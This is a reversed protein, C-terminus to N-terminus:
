RSETDADSRRLGPAVSKLHLDRQPFPIEIGTDVIARNVLVTVESRIRIFRESRNTWARLEFDLSSDGFGLFLVVPEPTKLLDPHTGAVEKLLAIVREPDTGYAVGVKVDVRRDRDSLTWNIVQQSILDGNPVIVEAGEWTRVTSSRIGIRKVEGFLSTVQITDGVQVPREFLLILGSIFNNVVNQLGFGIGVGFAGALLAFQSLQVGAAAVALLFGLLLIGYHLVYSVAYPVGRPLALRPLLDEDLVFRVFRSLLFSAWVTLGFLLIGGFSFEVAGLSIPTAVASTVADVVNGRVAFLNLVIWVWWVLLGAHVWAFGRRRLLPAHSQVMRLLRLPRVRLAVAVLGDLVKAAAYFIAAVLFSGLTAVVLLRALNVAGAGNALLAVAMLLLGLWLGLVIARLWGTAGTLAVRRGPRLLWGLVALAAVSELMLLFREVVTLVDVLDRLRDIAFLGALAFLGVRMGSFLRGPLLRLIPFVTVLLVADTVVGPRRAYLWPILIVFVVLAMSVPRAMCHAAVALSEDDRAWREARSRLGIALALVVLLIFVHLVLTGTNAKVFARLSAADRKLSVRLREGANGPAFQALASWLPPSDREFLRLRERELAKHVAERVDAVVLELQALRSQLTLVHRRREQLSRRTDAAAKLVGDARALLEPPAGSKQAASRSREWLQHLTGVRDLDERLSRARGTLLAGRATLRANDDKWDAELELLAELSTQTALRDTTEEARNRLTRSLEPLEDELTKVGARPSAEGGLRRLASIASEAAGAIESPDLVPPPQAESAEAPPEADGQARAPVAALLGCGLVFFSALLRSV